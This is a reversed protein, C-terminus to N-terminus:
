LIIMEKPIQLKVNSNKYSNPCCLTLNQLKPIQFTQPEFWEKSETSESHKQPARKETALVAAEFTRSKLDLQM